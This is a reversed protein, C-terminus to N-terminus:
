TFNPSLPSCVRVRILQCALVVVCVRVRRAKRPGESDKRLGSGNAERVGKWSEATLSVPGRDAGCGALDYGLAKYAAVM